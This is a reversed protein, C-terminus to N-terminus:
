QFIMNRMPVISEFVKYRYHRADGAAVNFSPGPVPNGAPNTWLAITPEAVIEKEYNGSRTVIAVRIAKVALWSQAVQQPTGILFNPDDPTFSAVALAEVGRPNVWVDVDTDNDTDLGYQARISVVGDAFDTPAGNETLRLQGNLVDYRRAVGNGLNYAVAMAPTGDAAFTTPLTMGDATVATNLAAKFGNTPNNQATRAQGDDDVYNAPPAAFFVQNGAGVNTVEGLVCVSNPVLLLNPCIAVRDGNRIGAINVLSIPNIPSTNSAWSNLLPVPVTLGHNTSYNVDIADSTLGPTILVPRFVVEDQAANLNENWIYLPQGQSILARQGDAANRVDQEITFLAIAGNQQADGGSITTRKQGESVAFIQFMVMTGILGIVVAVMLEVLSFGRDHDPTTKYLLTM